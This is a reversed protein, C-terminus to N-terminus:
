TKLLKSSNPSLTKPLVRQWADRELEDRIRMITRWCCWAEYALPRRTRYYFERAKGCDVDYAPHDAGILSPLHNGSIMVQEMAAELTQERTM